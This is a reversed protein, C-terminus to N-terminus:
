LSLTPELRIQPLLYFNGQLEVVEVNAGYDDVQLTLIAQWVRRINEMAQILACNM